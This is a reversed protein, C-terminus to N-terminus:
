NLPYVIRTRYDSERTDGPGAVYEEWMIRPPTRAHDGFWNALLAYTAPLTSYPGIHEARVVQGAPLHEVALGPTASPEAAVPFGATVDFVQSREHSYVATPPGTVTAGIHALEAAVAPIARSFFAEIEAPAVRGRRGAVIRAPATTIEIRDTATANGTRERVRHPVVLVPRATHHLTAMAVSGLLIERIASRGRSGVVVAAAKHETALRALADAVARGSPHGALEEATLAEYGEPAPQEPAGDHVAALVLRRRGFLEEAVALARQAGPSGDWGVLVPGATLSARENLLLPHPVVLVPRPAYHVAMDSVSGLLAHAGGLGRSGLVLLDPELKEALEALQMGEGGYGREVLPEAEWGAARALAVGMTAVRMSEAAGEREVAAVFDDVRRTGHWLRRRLTEDAFPPVWLYAIRAHAQPVLAAAVEIAAGAAVSGDYGVIVQLSTM